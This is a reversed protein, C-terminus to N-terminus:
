NNRPWQARQRGSLYEPATEQVSGLAPAGLKADM